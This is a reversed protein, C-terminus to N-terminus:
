PLTAMGGGGRAPPPSAVTVSTWTSGQFTWTDDLFFPTTGLGGFLVLEGGFPAMM